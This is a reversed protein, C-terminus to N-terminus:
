TGSPSRASGSPPGGLTASAAVVPGPGERPTPGTGSGAGEDPPLDSLDGRPTVAAFGAPVLPALVAAVAVLPRVEGPLWGLLPLALGWWQGRGALFAAPILLQVLYHPHFFPSFLLTAALSVVVATELDRRRAAFSTAAVAILIGLGVWVSSPGPLGLAAATTALSENNQGGSLGGLVSVMAAYDLWGAFGVFALSAAAIVLGAVTTLAVQRVQRTVLLGLGVVAFPYRVVGAAALAAAGIPSSRFRWIVASAAFLLISVNGLNLDYLVPFSVAAVALTAARAGRSIPLIAVAGVLAALRLWLWALAATQFAVLGFPIMAVALPPAYLYLGAYLGSNYAEATGPPYLPVGAALRRAADYYASFDYAFGRSGVFSAAALLLM